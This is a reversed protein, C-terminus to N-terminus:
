SRGYNVTVAGRPRLHQALLHVRRVVGDQDLVSPERANGRKEVCAEIHVFLRDHRARLIGHAGKDFGLEVLNVPQEHKRVHTVATETIPRHDVKERSELATLATGDAMDVPPRRPLVAVEFRREQSRTDVVTVEGLDLRRHRPKECAALGYSAEPSPANM